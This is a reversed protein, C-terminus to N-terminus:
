AANGSREKIRDAAAEGAATLAPGAGDKRRGRAIDLFVDELNGRGYRSLLEGPAGDEVIRGRNLIMVRDAM